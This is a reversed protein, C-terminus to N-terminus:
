QVFFGEGKLGRSSLSLYPLMWAASVGVAARKLPHFDLWEKDDGKEKCKVIASALLM